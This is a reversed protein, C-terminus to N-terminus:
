NCIRAISVYFNSKSLIREISGGLEDREIVSPPFPESVFSPISLGRPFNDSSSFGV